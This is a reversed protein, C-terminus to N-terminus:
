ERTRKWDKFASLLQERLPSPPESEDPLGTLEITRRMHDLYDRCWSCWVLHREFDLREDPPLAGELYDTVLEVVERCTLDTQEPVSM